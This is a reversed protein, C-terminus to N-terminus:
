TMFRKGLSRVKPAHRQEPQERDVEGRSYHQGGQQDAAQQHEIGAPSRSRIKASLEGPVASPSNSNPNAIVKPEAAIPVAIMIAAFYCGYVHNSYIESEITL